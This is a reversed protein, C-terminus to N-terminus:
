PRSRSNPLWVLQGTDIDFPVVELEFGSEYTFIPLPVSFTDTKPYILMLRKNPEDRLYKHGYAYLQYMDSQSIKYKSSRDGADILKWKTDLVLTNRGDRQVVFDPRLNFIPKGNHSEVLSHKRINPNIATANDFTSKLNRRLCYGVYDEFVKEMPYLVSLTNFSGASTTPGRGNLLFNCWALAEQYYGMSRDLRVKKFDQDIDTSTPVEDFVFALEKAKRQNASSRAIKTVLWLATKILRNAPRNNQYEQYDIFFREQHFSNRRIQDKLRLRGKLYTANKTVRVYDSRIGRKVVQTVISLFQSIYIELLPMRADRIDAKHSDKFPNDRLARLMKLLLNRTVEDSAEDSTNYLKPLIEIQTGCPTRIVGVYNRVQLAPQHKYTTLRVFNHLDDETTDDHLTALLHSFASHPIPQAIVEGGKNETDLLFGFERISVSRSPKM